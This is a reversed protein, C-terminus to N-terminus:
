FLSEMEKCTMYFDEGADGKKSYEGDCVYQTSKLERVYRTGECAAKACVGLDPQLSTGAGQGREKLDCNSTM